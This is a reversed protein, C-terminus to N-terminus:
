SMYIHTPADYFPRMLTSECLRRRIGFSRVIGQFGEIILASMDVGNFALVMVGGGPMGFFNHLGITM